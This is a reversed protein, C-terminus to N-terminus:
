GFLGAFAPNKTKYRPTRRDNPGTAVPAFSGLKPSRVANTRSCLVLASVAAATM